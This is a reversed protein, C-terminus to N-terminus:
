GFTNIHLDQILEHIYKSLVVLRQDKLPCSLDPTQQGNYAVHLTTGFSVSKICFIPPYQNFPLAQEVAQFINNTRTASLQISNQATSTSPTTTLIPRFRPAVTWKVLGDRQLEIVYGATNTSGSNTIRVINNGTNSSVFTVFIAFIICLITVM